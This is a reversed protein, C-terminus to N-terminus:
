PPYGDLERNRIVEAAVALLPQGTRQGAEVLANLGDEDSMQYRSMVFALATRLLILNGDGDAPPSM